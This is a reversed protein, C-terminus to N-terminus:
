IQVAPKYFVQKMGREEEETQDGNERGVGWGGLWPSSNTLDKQARHCGNKGDKNGKAKISEEVSHEMIISSVTEQLEAIMHEIEAMELVEEKHNVEGLTKERVDQFEQVGNKRESSEVHNVLTGLILVCSLSSLVKELNSFISKM